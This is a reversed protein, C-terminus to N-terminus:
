NQREGGSGIEAKGIIGVGFGGCRFVMGRNPHHTVMPVLRTFIHDGQALHIHAHFAIKMAAILDAITLNQGHRVLM